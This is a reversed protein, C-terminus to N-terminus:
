YTIINVQEKDKSYDKPYDNNKPCDIQTKHYKYCVNNDDIYTLNDINNPTPNKLVIKPSPSTIYVYMFGIFLALFFYTAVFQM